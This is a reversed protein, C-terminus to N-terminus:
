KVLFSISFRLVFCFLNSIFITQVQIFINHILVFPRHIFNSVSRIHKYFNKHFHIFPLFSLIPIESCNQETNDSSMFGRICPKIPELTKGQLTLFHLLIYKTYNSFAINRFKIGFKSINSQESRM